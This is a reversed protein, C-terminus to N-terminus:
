QCCKDRGKRTGVFQKRKKNWITVFFSSALSVLVIAVLVLNTGSSLAFLMPSGGALLLFPLGCCASLGIGIVLSSAISRSPHRSEKEAKEVEGKRDKGSLTSLSQGAGEPKGRENKKM